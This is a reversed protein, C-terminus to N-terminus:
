KSAMNEPPSVREKPTGNDVVVPEWYKDSKLDSNATIRVIQDNLRIKKNNGTLGLNAKGVQPASIMNQSLLEYYLNIGTFDVELHALRKKILDYAQHKGQAWGKTTYLVWVKYEQENSPRLHEVPLNPYNIKMVLYDRWTPAVSVFRAPTVIEIIRDSLRLTNPSDLSLNKGGQRIVPPLMNDNLILRRFDFIADLKTAGTELIYNYRTAYYSLASQAGYSLAEEIMAQNRVIGDGDSKNTTKTSSCGVFCFLCTLCVLWKM